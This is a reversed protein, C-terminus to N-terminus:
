WEKLVLIGSYWTNILLQNRNSDFLLLNIYETEYIPLNIEAWTSGGNFSQFLSSEGSCFLHDPDNSNIKITHFGHESHTFIPDSIEGNVWDEGGNESKYITGFWADLTYIINQDFPHLELHMSYIGFHPLDVWSNGGDNSKIIFHTYWASIGGVWLINENINSKEFYFIYAIGGSLFQDYDLEVYNWTDGFNDSAIYGTGWGVLQNNVWELKKIVRSPSELGNVSLNWNAGGDTTKFVGPITSYYKEGTVVWTDTDSESRIFDYIVYDEIGTEESSLGLYEWEHNESDLNLRWLGDYFTGIYLYPSYIKFQSISLSDTSIFAWEENLPTEFLNYNMSVVLDLINTQSDLNVDSAWLEYETPEPPTELIINVTRIIDLIDVSGDQNVDGLIDQSYIFSFLLFSVPFLSARRLKRLHFFAQGDCSAYFPSLFCSSPSLRGATRGARLACAPAVACTPTISKWSNQFHYIRNMWTQFFQM